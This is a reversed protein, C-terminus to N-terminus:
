ELRVEWAKVARLAKQHVRKLPHAGRARQHITGGDHLTGNTPKTFRRPQAITPDGFTLPRVVFVRSPPVWRCDHNLRGRRL